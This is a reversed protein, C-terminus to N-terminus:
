QTWEWQHVNWAIAADPSVVRPGRLAAVHAVPIPNFYLPIAPLQDAFLQAMSAIQEVRQSRDLTTTFAAALVDFEPNTWGGRNNGIWRNEPRPVGATTHSALTEEGLPTSFTYLAPFTSRVQGDQAQAQPVVMEKVDFGAQRWGAGLISLEAENQSSGNTRLDLTLRGDTGGAYVADAGRTFGAEAMLQETRAPAHPYATIGRSVEAYSDVSPPILPVDGMIGEGEFLADNLTGRDIAYALAKRVRVDLLARPSVLDPRLQVYTGRWLDPKVLVSGGSTAAWERKLTLGQQFRISDDASFHVEGALLNAVTTNPDGIFVIRIREIRPRGLTHGAFAAGEIFSGPEWRQVKYPGSGVFDRTWFPDAAFADAAGNQLTRGLLHSPLPPLGDTLMGAQLYPRKWRILVTGPDSAVVEDMQNVPPASAVGLEPNAYVQWAFVFDDATLPIGDHWTLDSKLRYTTEMRGDPDMHWSESDLRPLERALSPSAQGRDDFLALTANFLRRTTTLTFGGSGLPKAALTAPEVRIAIALTRGAESPAAPQPAQGPRETPRPAAPACATIVLAITLLWVLRAPAV